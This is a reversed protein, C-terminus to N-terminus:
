AFAVMAIYIYMMVDEVSKFLMLALGELMPFLM